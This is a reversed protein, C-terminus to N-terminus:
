GYGVQSAAMWVVHPLLDLGRRWWRTAGCGATDGVSVVHVQQQSAPPVLVGRFGTASAFGSALQRCVELVGGPHCLLSCRRARRRPRRRSATVRRGRERVGGAGRRCGRTQREYADPLVPTASAVQLCRCGRCPRGRVRQEEAGHPNQRCRPSGQPRRLWVAARHQARRDQFSLRADPHQVVRTAARKGSQARYENLLVDSPHAVTQDLGRSAVVLAFGLSGLHLSRTPRGGAARRRHDTPAAFRRVAAVALFPALLMLLAGVWPWVASRVYFTLVYGVLGDRASGPCASVTSVARADGASRLAVMQCSSRAPM